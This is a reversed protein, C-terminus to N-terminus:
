VIRIPLQIYIFFLTTVEEEIFALSKDKQQDINNADDYIFPKTEPVTAVLHRFQAVYSSSFFFTPAPLNKFRSHRRGFLQLHPGKFKYSVGKKTYKRQSSSFSNLWGWQQQVRIHEYWKSNM